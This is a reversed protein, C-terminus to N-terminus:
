DVGSEAAAVGEADENLPLAVAANGRKVAGRGRAHDVLIRRMLQAAFGFFHARNQWQVQRQDVLRLYAEHVLATTELTHGPRERRLYRAAQRQLESYVSPLLRDLAERDGASWAKLLHTVNDSSTSTM